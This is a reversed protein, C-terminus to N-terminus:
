GTVAEDRLKGVADLAALIIIALALGYVAGGVGYLEFGLLSVAIAVLLIARFKNQM